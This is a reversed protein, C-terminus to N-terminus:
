LAAEAWQRAKAEALAQTEAVIVVSREPKPDSGRTIWAVWHPGRAESHVQYPGASMARFSLLDPGPKTCIPSIQGIESQAPRVM